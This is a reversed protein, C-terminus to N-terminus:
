MCGRRADLKRGRHNVAGKEGGASQPALHGLKEAAARGASSHFLPTFFVFGSFIPMPIKPRAGPAFALM